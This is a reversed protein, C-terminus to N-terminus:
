VAEGGGIHIERLPLRNSGVRAPVYGVTPYGWSNKTLIVREVIEQLRPLSGRCLAEVATLERVGNSSQAHAVRGRLVLLRKLEARDVELDVVPAFSSLLDLLKDDSSGFASELVKWLERFRASKLKLDLADRYIRLGVQQPLLSALDAGSVRGSVSGGMMSAVMTESHVQDTGWERLQQRDRETEAIVRHASIRVSHRVPSDLLFTLAAAVDQALMSGESIREIRLTPVPREQGADDRRFWGSDTVLDVDDADVPLHLVLHWSHDDFEIIRGTVGDGLAVDFPLELENLTLGPKSLTYALEVIM